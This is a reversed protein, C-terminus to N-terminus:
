LVVAAAMLELGERRGIEAIQTINYDRAGETIRDTHVVDARYRIVFRTTNEAIPQQSAIFERGRVDNRAAWVTAYATFTEVEQHQADRELTRHRLTIRRDLSGARM